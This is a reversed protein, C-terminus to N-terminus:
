FVNKKRHIIRLINNSPRSKGRHLICMFEPFLFLFFPFKEKAYVYYFWPPYIKCSCPSRFSEFLIFGGCTCEFRNLFNFVGPYRSWASQFSEVRPLFRSISLRAILVKTFLRLSNTLCLVTKKKERERAFLKSGSERERWRTLHRFNKCRKDLKPFFACSHARTERLSNKRARFPICEVKICVYNERPFYKRSISGKM